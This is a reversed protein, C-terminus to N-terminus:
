HANYDIIMKAENSLIAELSPLSPGEGTSISEWGGM